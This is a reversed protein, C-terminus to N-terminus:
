YLKGSKKHIKSNNEIMEPTISTGTMTFKERLLGMRQTVPELLTLSLTNKEEDWTFQDSYIEIVQKSKKSLFDLDEPLKEEILYYRYFEKQIETWEEELPYTEAESKEKLSYIVLGLFSGIIVALIIQLATKM